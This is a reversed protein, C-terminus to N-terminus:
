KEKILTRSVNQSGQLPSRIANYREIFVRFHIFFTMENAIQLLQWALYVTRKYKIDGYHNGSSSASAKVKKVLQDSCKIESEICSQNSSKVQPKECAM